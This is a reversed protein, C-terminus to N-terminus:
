DDVNPPPFYELAYLRRGSFYMAWTSGKRAVFDDNLPVRDDSALRHLLDPIVDGQSCVVVAGGQEELRRLLEITEQEHGPYGLESLLPELEVRAGVARALPEVSQVCRVFDASLIRRVEFLGLFRALADAQQAGKSDVPRIRDDGRWKARQGANAHRVLLVLGTTLPQSAFRGLVERDTPYSLMSRAGDVAVWRLEDVERGPQFSGGNSHMAWFSIVKPRTVGGSSSKLYRIKGLSRGPSGSYGTEEEVERLAAEFETEGPELKGKPLSWDDYRPRHVLAVEIDDGGESRPARRWLVGGAARIEPRKLGEDV